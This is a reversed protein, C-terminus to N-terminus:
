YTTVRVDAVGSEVVIDYSNRAKSYDSTRYTKDGIILGSSLGEIDVYGVGSTSSVRVAADEPVEIRVVSVGSEIRVPVRGAGRYLEGLRINCESVGTSVSLSSVKLDELDADLSSVGSDLTIDWEIKRSLEVNMEPRGRYWVSPGDGEASLTVDARQGHVGVEFEPEGFPSAGEATVLANGDSINLEGVATSIEIEGEDIGRVAPADFEFDQAVPGVVGLGFNLSGSPLVLAGYWLGGIVVLSSLVRLWVNETGKGIVELGAAILLIPWLSFISFWVTWPLVGMTNGLFILGVSVLTLGEVM